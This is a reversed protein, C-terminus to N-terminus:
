SLRERGSFHISLVLVLVGLIASPGLIDVLICVPLFLCYVPSFGAFQLFLFWLMKLPPHTLAVQTDFREIKHNKQLLEQLAKVLFVGYILSIYLFIGSSLLCEMYVFIM